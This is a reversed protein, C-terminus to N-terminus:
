QSVYISPETGFADVHCRIITFPFHRGEQHAKMTDDCGGLRKAGIFTLPVTKQGTKEILYSQIAAGDPRQDLELVSIDLM